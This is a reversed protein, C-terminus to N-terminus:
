VTYAVVVTISMVLMGVAPTAKIWPDRVRIHAAVAGAMFLAMLAAAAQAVPAFAIGVLLATALSLKAAGVLVRARDSLGYRRFEEAM